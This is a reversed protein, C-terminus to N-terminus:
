KNTLHLRFTFGKGIAKVRTLLHLYFIQISKAQLKKSKEKKERKGALSM